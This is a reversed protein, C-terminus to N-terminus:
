WRFNRGHKSKFLKVWRDIGYRIDENSVLNYQNLESVILNFRDTYLYNDNKNRM